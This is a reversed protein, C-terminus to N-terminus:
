RYDAGAADASRRGAGPSRGAHLTGVDGGNFSWGDADGSNRGVRRGYGDRGRAQPRKVWFRALLIRSTPWPDAPRLFHQNLDRDDASQPRGAGSQSDRDPLHVAGARRQLALATRRGSIGDSRRSNIAPEKAIDLDGRYFRQRVVIAGREFDLHREQLGLIESIRLTCFLGVCVALRVDAPLMALLRRTEDDTLKRQSRAAIKRGAHVHEIPNGDKWRGWEIAKTFISSLINRIDARTAWSLPKEGEGKADLWRQVLLPQLDCLMLHGIAPKIHNKLHNRYKERTSAALRDVHMTQYEELFRELKIQSTIIYDARNITSMIERARTMAERKGMSGISITKLARSVRGDKIVDM